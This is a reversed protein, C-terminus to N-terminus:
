PWWRVNRAHHATRRQQKSALLQWARLGFRAWRRHPQPPRFLWSRLTHRCLTMRFGFAADIDCVRTFLLHDIIYMHTRRAFPPKLAIKGDCCRYLQVIPLPLAHSRCSCTRAQVFDLESADKRAQLLHLLNSALESAAASSEKEGVGSHHVGLAWLGIAVDQTALATGCMDAATGRLILFTSSGGPVALSALAHMTLFVQQGNMGAARQRAASLLRARESEGPQISLSALANWTDAVDQPNNNPLERMSAQVLRSQLAESPRIELGALATWTNAVEQPNSTPLERLSAQQLRSQLAESPRIQLVALAKWTNAVNQPNSNPLERLSAKLLRSQLAENPRIRLGALANWTCAVDQGDMQGATRETAVLLEGQLADDPEIGLGHLANWTNAAHQATMDGAKREAVDLLGACDTAAVQWAAHRRLGSLANLSNAVGQAGMHHAHQQVLRFLHPQVQLDSPLKRQKALRYVTNMATSVAIADWVVDSGTAVREWFHVSICGTDRQALLLKNIDKPNRLFRKNDSCKNLLNEFLRQFEESKGATELLSVHVALQRSIDSLMVLDGPTGAGDANQLVRTLTSLVRGSQSRVDSSRVNGLQQLTGRVNGRASEM